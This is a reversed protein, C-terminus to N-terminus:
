PDSRYRSVAAAHDDMLMKREANEEAVTGAEEAPLLEAPEHGDIGL